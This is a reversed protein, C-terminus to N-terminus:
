RINKFTVLGWESVWYKKAMGANVELVYKAFVEPKYASCPDEKCPQATLIRVVKYANDIRIIDLPILTNKMRFNYFDSLPFVFLMGHDASMAERLMLGSEQEARERAVEVTFCKKGNCVEPVEGWKQFSNTGKYFLFGLLILCFVILILYSHKSSIRKNEM